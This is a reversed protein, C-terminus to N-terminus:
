KEYGDKKIKNKSRSYLTWITRQDKKLLRAIEVYTLGSNKLFSVLAESASLKKNKFISLPIQLPTDLIILKKEKELNKVHNYVSWITKVDRNILLAIRKNTLQLNEKLYRIITQFPTLKNQFITVPLYIEEEYKLNLYFVSPTETNEYEEQFQNLIQLDSVAYNLREESM